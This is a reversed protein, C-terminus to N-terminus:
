RNRISIRNIHFNAKPNEIMERTIKSITKGQELHFFPALDEYIQQYFELSTPCQNARAYNIWDMYRNPPRKGKNYTIYELEEFNLASKENEDLYLNEDSSSNNEDVIDLSDQSTPNEKQKEDTQLLESNDPSQIQKSSDNSNNTSSDSKSNESSNENTSDNKESFNENSNEQNDTNLSPEILSKETKDNKEQNDETSKQTDDLGLFNKKTLISNIDISLQSQIDFRFIIVTTTGIFLLLIFSVLGAIKRNFINM